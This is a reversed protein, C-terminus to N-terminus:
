FEIQMGVTHCGEINVTERAQTNRIARWNIDIRLTDALQAQEFARKM